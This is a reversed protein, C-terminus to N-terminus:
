IKDDDFPSELHWCPLFKKRANSLLTRIEKKTDFFRCRKLMTLGFPSLLIKSANVEKKISQFELSSVFLTSLMMFYVKPM